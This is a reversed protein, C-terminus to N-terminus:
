ISKKIIAANVLVLILIYINDLALNVFLYFM